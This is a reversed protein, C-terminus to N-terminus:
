SRIIGKYEDHFEKRIKKQLRYYHSKVTSESINLDAAIQTFTFDGYIHLRYIQQVSPLFRSVYQEIKRLLDAQEIQKIFDTEDATETEELLIVQLSRKRRYDIIKNTAIRYLWTRFSAQERKYTKISHLMAIFIEQTLDYADHNQYLQKCVYQYIEDYYTRVLLDAEKKAGLIKIKRIWKQEIDEKM